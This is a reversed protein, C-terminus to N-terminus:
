VFRAGCKPCFVADPARKEGCNQCFRSESTPVGVTSPVRGSPPTSLPNDPMKTRLGCLNCVITYRHRLTCCPLFFFTFKGTHLNATHMTEKACRQCRFPAQGLPQLRWRSGWIFFM